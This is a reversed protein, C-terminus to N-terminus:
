CNQYAAHFSAVADKMFVAFPTTGSNQLRKLLLQMGFLNAYVLVAIKQSFISTGCLLYFKGSKGLNGM